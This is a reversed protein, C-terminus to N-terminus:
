VQFGAGRVDLAEVSQKDFCSTADIEGQPTEIHIADIPTKEGSLTMRKLLSM